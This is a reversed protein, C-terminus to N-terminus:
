KHKPKGQKRIPLDHLIGNKVYFTVPERLILKYFEDSSKKDELVRRTLYSIPAEM